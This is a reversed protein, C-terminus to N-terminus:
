LKVKRCAYGVARNFYDNLAQDYADGTGYDATTPFQLGLEKSLDLNRAVAASSAAQAMQLHGYAGANPTMTFM